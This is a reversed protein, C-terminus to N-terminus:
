LDLCNESDSVYTFNFLAEALNELQRTSLVRLREILSTDIQNFRRNLLRNIMRTAGQKNRKNLIDQCM